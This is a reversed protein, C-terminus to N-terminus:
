LIAQQATHTELPHASLLDEGGRGPVQHGGPFDLKSAPKADDPRHAITQHRERARAVGGGAAALLGRIPCRRRRDRDQDVMYYILQLLDFYEYQDTRTSTSAVSM